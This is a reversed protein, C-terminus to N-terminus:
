NQVDYAELLPYDRLFRRLKLLGAAISGLGIMCLTWGGAIHYYDTLLMLGLILVAVAWAKRRPRIIAASLAYSVIACVMMRELTVADRNGQEVVREAYTMGAANLVGFLFMWGVERAWAWPRLVAATFRVYGLRPYTIRRKWLPFMFFLPVGIGLGIVPNWGLLSTIGTFLVIGGLITEIFGDRNQEATFNNFLRYRTFPRDFDLAPNFEPLPPSPERDTSPM